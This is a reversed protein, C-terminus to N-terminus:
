HWSIWFGKRENCDSSSEGCPRSATSIGRTASCIARLVQWARTEKKFRRAALSRTLIPKLTVNSGSFTLIQGNGKCNRM